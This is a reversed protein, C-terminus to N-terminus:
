FTKYIDPMRDPKTWLRAILVSVSRLTGSACIVSLFHTGTVEWDSKDFLPDPINRLM